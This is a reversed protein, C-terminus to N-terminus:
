RRMHGNRVVSQMKAASQKIPHWNPVCSRWSTDSPACKSVCIKASPCVATFGPPIELSGTSKGSCTYQSHLKSCVAFQLWSVNYVMWAKDAM